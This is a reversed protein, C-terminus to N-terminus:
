FIRRAGSVCIKKLVRKSWSLRRWVLSNSRVWYPHRIFPQYNILNESVQRTFRNFKRKEKELLLRNKKLPAVHFVFTKTFNQRHLANVWRSVLGCYTVPNKLFFSFHEVEKHACELEIIVADDSDTIYTIKGQPHFDYVVNYDVYGTPVLPVVSPKIVFPHVLFHRGLFTTADIKWYLQNTVLSGAEDPLNVTQATVTPHLHQFASNLMQRASVSLTKIDKQLEIRACLLPLFEDRVVRLSPCFVIEAGKKVLQDVTQLVGDALVFDANLFIFYPESKDVRWEKIAKHYAYTLINGYCGGHKAIIAAIDMFCVTYKKCVQCFDENKELWQWREQTTCILLSFDAQRALYPINHKSLYSPLAYKIWIESHVEGWFPILVVYRNKM